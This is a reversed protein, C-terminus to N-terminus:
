FHFVNNVHVLIQSVVFDPHLVNTFPSTHLVCPTASPRLALFLVPICCTLPQVAQNHLDQEAAEKRRSRKMSREKWESTPKCHDRAASDKTLKDGGTKAYARLQELQTIGKVQSRARRNSEVLIPHFVSCM